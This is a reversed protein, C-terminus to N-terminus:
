FGPVEIGEQSSVNNTAFEPHLQYWLLLLVKGIRTRGDVLIRMRKGSEPDDVEIATVKENNTDFGEERHAESMGYTKLRRQEGLWSHEARWRRQRERNGARIEEKTKGM